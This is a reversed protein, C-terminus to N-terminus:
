RCEARDANVIRCSQASPCQFGCRRCDFGPANPDACSMSGCPVMGPACTHSCRGAVCVPATNPGPAPCRRGCAGCNMPDSDLGDGCAAVDRSPQPPVVVDPAIAVDATVAADSSSAAPADAPPVPTAGDPADAPVPPAEAPCACAGVAGVEDCVQAGVVGGPCVCAATTGPTCDRPALEASVSCGFALVAALLHRMPTVRRKVRRLNWTRASEGGRRM